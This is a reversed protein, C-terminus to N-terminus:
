RRLPLVLVFQAGGATSEFSLTGGLDKALRRSLALGLGIGPATQAAEQDSKSFPRFLRRARVAPIGPGHDTVRVFASERSTSWRIHIRRDHASAAYKCANDVLNFLIQEVASPDTHVVALAHEPALEELLTMNAQRVREPIREVCRLRLEDLAIAVRRRANRGRELRAYQLVNDVLHFLRDAELRLTELYTHRQEEGTVMGESLMEAYMRFTTLPTRLEHTVASVFAARRESLAVVRRLVFAIAAAALVLCSWAIVLSVRIVSLSSTADVPLSFDPLSATTLGALQVPLTALLRGPPVPEDGAAPLLEIRPFLDAVEHVLLQRIRPWDLWCGQIRVEEGVVLRRALILKSDIWFPRSVGERVANADSLFMANSYQQARQSRAFNQVSMNRRAFQDEDRSQRPLAQQRTQQAVITQADPPPPDVQQVFGAEGPAPEEQQERTQPFPPNEPDGAMAVTGPAGVTGPVQALPGDAAIPPLLNEPLLPLLQDYRVGAVLQALRERSRAIGEASIGAALVSPMDAEGPAQPSSWGAEASAEFYLLVFESPQTLLPSPVKERGGKGGAASATLFPQYVFSPRTVEQAILPTLTWDMRWLAAAIRDQLEAKRRAQEAEARMEVRARDLEVTRVTLWVMAPAVTALCLGFLIWIQWPRKV